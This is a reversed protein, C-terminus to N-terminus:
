IPIIVRREILGCPCNCIFRHIKQLSETMTNKTTSGSVNRVKVSLNNAITHHHSLWIEDKTIRLRLTCVRHIKGWRSPDIRGPFHGRWKTRGCEYGEGSLMSTFWVIVILESTPCHSSHSIIASLFVTITNEFLVKSSLECVRLYVTMPAQTASESTSRASRSSSLSCRFSLSCRYVTRWMWLSSWSSIRSSFARTWPKSAVRSAFHSRCSFALKCYCTFTDSQVADRVEHLRVDVFDYSSASLQFDASQDHRCVWRSLSCGHNVATGVLTNSRVNSWRRIDPDSPHILVSVVWLRITARSDVLTWIV